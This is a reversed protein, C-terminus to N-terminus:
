TTSSFEGARSLDMWCIRHGLWQGLEFTDEDRDWGITCCRRGPGTKLLVASSSATALFGTLHAM